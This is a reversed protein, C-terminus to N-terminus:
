RRKHSKQYPIKYAHSNNSYILTSYIAYRVQRRKMYSNMYDIYKLDYERNSKLLELTYARYIEGGPTVYQAILNPINVEYPSRNIENLDHLDDLKFSKEVKIELLKMSDRKQKKHFSKAERGDSEKENCRCIPCRIVGNLKRMIYECEDCIIHDIPDGSLNVSGCDIVYVGNYPKFCVLCSM